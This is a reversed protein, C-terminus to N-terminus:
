ALESLVAAVAEYLAEPIAEGMELEVLARALPVDQVIPVGYDRAARLIQAAEEGRGIAVVLPADDDRAPDYRLACALHTPNVVVVSANKVAALTAQALPEHHARERAAKLQPDGEADRHERKVEAKTMRLRRLWARRTVLIDVVALALGVFAARWVLTGAISAVLPVVGRPRGPTQALDAAHDALGAVALYAVIAGAAFARAVAFARTWSFLRRFGAVPDLRELDPALRAVTVFGGTQLGQM